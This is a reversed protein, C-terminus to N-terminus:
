IGFLINMVLEATAKFVEPFNFFIYLLIAVVVTIVMKVTHGKAYGTLLKFAVFSTLVNGLLQLSRAQFAVPDFVLAMVPMVPEIATHITQIMSMM